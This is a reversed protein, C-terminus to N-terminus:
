FWIENTYTKIFYILVLKQEHRLLKPRSHLLKIHSSFISESCRYAIKQCFQAVECRTFFSQLFLPWNNSAVITNWLALECCRYEVGCFFVVKICHSAVKCCRYAVLFCFLFCSRYSVFCSQHEILSLKMVITLSELVFYFAVETYYSAVKTNSSAVKNCRYAVGSCFLFLNQQSTFCSQHEILCNLLLPLCSWLLIFAVESPHSAVKLNSSPFHVQPDHLAAFFDKPHDSSVWNKAWYLGMAAMRVCHNDESGALSSGPRRRGWDYAIFQAMM